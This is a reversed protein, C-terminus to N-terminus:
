GPTLIISNTCAYIATYCVLGESWVTASVKKKQNVAHPWHSM